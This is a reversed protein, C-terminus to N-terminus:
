KGNGDLSDKDFTEQFTMSCRGIELGDGIGNERSGLSNEEFEINFFLINVLRIIIIGLVRLV